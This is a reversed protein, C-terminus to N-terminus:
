ANERVMNYNDFILNTYISIDRDTDIERIVGEKRSQTLEAVQIKLTQILYYPDDRKTVYLNLWYKCHPVIEALLQIKLTRKERDWSMEIDPNSIGEIVESIQSTRAIDTLLSFDSLKKKIELRGRESPGIYYDNRNKEGSLFPTVEELPAVFPNEMESDELPHPSIIRIDGSDRDWYLYGKKPPVFMYSITYGTLDSKLQDPLDDTPFYTRWSTTAAFMEERVELPDSIGPTGTIQFVEPLLSRPGNIPDRKRIDKVRKRFDNALRVEMRNNIVEIEFDAGEQNKLIKKM